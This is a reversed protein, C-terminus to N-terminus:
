RNLYLRGQIPKKNGKNLHLVYFYVGNPAIGDIGVKYDSNRGDWAPKSKNGKFLLNGYRNYIELTFDPYIFEITPIRFTDNVTDGNPSFGDPIFFDPTEECNSLVVTVELADSYCNTSNSFNFGYYTKGDTLLSSANLQNGNEAADFWVLTDDATTKDSLNQITPNDLGCFNQGDTALVPTDSENITVTVAARGSECGTTANVEKVYYTGTVLLTSTNLVTSSSVSDFWQYQSGSPTLNAISALDNKCGVFSSGSPTVPVTNVVFAKTKNLAMVSCGNGNDLVSNLTFTTNGSNALASAPIVFSTNGSAVNLTVNQNTAVNSDSLSYDITINTLTGLGTLQVTATQGLCINNISLAVASVNPLPKVTILKALAVSNSCGTTLNVINTVTFVTNVGVNPILNAPIAFNAMGSAVTFDLQQNAATNDGSLNYTIRYNGDTLNTNGSLQVQADMGKCVPDIVVTANNIRPLPNISLVDTISGLTNTCAGYYSTNKISTITFTYDGVTQLYSKNISFNFIGNTFNGNVTFPYNTIGNNISYAVDYNGNPVPQPGKTLTASYTAAPIQDECIDSNVMLTSGTFDILDEIIIKVDTYSDTCIPNNSTVTYRFGYVGAGFNNYITQVDVKNDISSTIQGTANLETWKGGADEGVLLNNLNLNNYAALNVNSCLLLDMPDGPVPKRFVSVSISASQEPCSDLTPITYTYSYNGEGLLKPNITNGSLTVSTTNGTWTGNQLPALQTGDFALFLNFSTVDDCVSVNPSPVGTYPGIKVTVTAENDSCVSPDQVYTYTYVDSNRLLQANLIGDFIAIELPKSNDIWTGGTAPSGGLLSFLNITKSSDKTLDDACITLSADEGACQSYSNSSLFILFFFSVTVFYKEIFYLLKEIM